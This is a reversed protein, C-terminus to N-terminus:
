NSRISFALLIVGSGFYIDFSGAHRNLISSQWQLNHNGGLKDFIPVILQTRIM